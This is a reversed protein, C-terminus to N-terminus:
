NIYSANFSLSIPICTINASNQVGNDFTRKMRIDLKHSGANLFKVSSLSYQAQLGGPGPEQTTQYVNTQVDDIYLAATYYSYGSGSPAASYDIGLMFNIFVAKGGLPININQVTGPITTWAAGNVNFNSGNAGPGGSTQEFTSITSASANPMTIVNGASDVGITQGSSVPTLANFNSFKLGSIGNNGSSIELKSTPSITGVGVNGEATIRMKETGVGNNGSSTTFIIPAPSTTATTGLSLATADNSATIRGPQEPMIELKLTSSVSNGDNDPSSFTGSAMKSSSTAVGSQQFGGSASFATSQNTGLITLDNGALNLLRVDSLSGNSNYVNSNTGETKIWQNGNFYYYGTSKVLVTQGTTANDPATVYVLAGTQSTTYIKQRLQNGTLRPAIIGDLSAQESPKGMVDLTASPASTNIGVQSFAATNSLVAIILILNRKMKLPNQM